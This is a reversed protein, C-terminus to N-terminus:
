GRLRIRLSKFAMVCMEGFGYEKSYRIPKSNLLRYRFRQRSAQYRRILSEDYATLGGKDPMDPNIADKLWAMGSEVADSIQRDIREYDVQSLKFEGSLATSASQLIYEDLGFMAAYDHFRAAGRKQNVVATFNKHFILSVCMGHFSDTLVYEANQFLWLWDELHADVRVYAKWAPDIAQNPDTVVVSKCGTMNCIRNLVDVKDKSYDLLYAFVYRGSVDVSAKRALGSLVDAGAFFIPDIVWDAHCGFKQSCLEVGSTERVSIKHFRNLCFQFFVREIESGKWYNGGFSAAYAIKNKNSFVFDLLTFEGFHKYLGYNWVQDSGVVFTDALANAEIMEPRNDYQRSIDYAPYPNDRFLEATGVSQYQAKKHCGILVASYGMRNLIKYLSYYTLQSGYNKIDWCGVIGVDHRCSLAYNSSKNFNSSAQYLDYFRKCAESRVVDADKGIRNGKIYKLDTKKIKRLKKGCLELLKRGKESNVIVISTGKEDAFSKDFKAIGWFDGLTIDGQRPIRNFNCKQCHESMLLHSHFAQEFLDIDRSRIIKKVTGDLNKTGLDESTQRKMDPVTFVTLNECDWGLEKDRFNWSKATGRYTEKLYDQFMRVSPAYYCLLDITYLNEDDKGLYSYLGAVQCPCGCFLVTEKNQLLKKIQRFTGSMHSQIYKSGCLKLLGDVNDVGCHYLVEGEWAAGFVTGKKVDIVAQAAALFVGGSSCKSRLEDHMQVAYSAPRKGRYPYEKPSLIPCINSCKNCNICKSADFESVYYGTEDQVMHLADTPCVASCASCGTCFETRNSNLYERFSM